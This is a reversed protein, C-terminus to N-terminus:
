KTLKKAADILDEYNQAEVSREPKILGKRELITLVTEAVIDEIVLDLPERHDVSVPDENGYVIFAIPRRFAWSLIKLERLGPEAGSEYRSLSVRSIGKYEPDVGKTVFSLAELTLGSTQRLRKLRDHITEGGLYFQVGQVHARILEKASDTGTPKKTNQAPQKKKETM